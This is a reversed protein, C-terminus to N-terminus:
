NKIKPLENYGFENFRSELELTKLGDEPDSNFEKLLEDITKNYYIGDTIEALSM